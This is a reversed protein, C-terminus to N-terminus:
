WAMYNRITRTMIIEFESSSGQWDPPPVRDRVGSRINPTPETDSIADGSLLLDIALAESDHSRSLARRVQDIPFGMSFIARADGTPAPRDSQVAPRTPPPSPERSSSERSELELAAAAEDPNSLLWDVARNLSNNTLQLARACAAPHFGMSQLESIHAAGPVPAPSASGSSSSM